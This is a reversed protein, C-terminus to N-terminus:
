GVGGAARPCIFVDYIVKFQQHQDNMQQSLPLPDKKRLYLHVGLCNKPFGYPCRNCTYDIKPLLSIPPITYSCIHVSTIYQIM